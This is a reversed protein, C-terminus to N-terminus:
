PRGGEFAERVDVLSMPWDAPDDAGGTAVADAFSLQFAVAGEPMAPRVSPPLIGQGDWPSRGDRDMSSLMDARFGDSGVSERVRGRSGGMVAVARGSLEITQM